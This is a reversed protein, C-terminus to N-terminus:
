GKAIGKLWRLPRTLKWSVSNMLKQLTLEKQRVAEQLHGIERDKDQIARLSEREQAKLIEPLVEKDIAAYCFHFSIKKLNWVGGLDVIMWPHGDQFIWHRGDTWRTNSQGVALAHSEGVDDIMEIRDLRLVVPANMPHFRVQRIPGCGTMDFVIEHEQGFVVQRIVQHPTFGIGTDFFLEAVRACIRIEAAHRYMDRHNLVANLRMFFQKEDDMAQIMSANRIRYYFHVKPIRYVKTGLRILSLWFDWDEWGYVMNINYGGAAEWDKRRFLASCFILNQYLIQEPTYDPLAWHGERAGFYAAECYVIGIDRHRDLIPVADALYEPGIKDDADLPLIYVGSAERIGNNRAAALGQNETRISRVKPHTLTKLLNVTGSDTSGDDVIIIELDPYTQALVSHVAEELYAGQNYCPIVVSVKSPNM